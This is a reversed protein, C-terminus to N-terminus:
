GRRRLLGMGALGVALLALASPVPVRVPQDSITIDSGAVEGNNGVEGIYLYLPTGLALPATLNFSIRGFDGLSVFGFAGPIATTAEGDFADLTAVANNVAGGLTGFLAPDVPARQTGPVFAISTFDFTAARTLSGVQSADTILVTSLVIADLDFGSFQGAAGGFGGSTDQITISAVTGALSSLDARFVGTAAISGGAVGTLQTFTVPTAAAPGALLLAFAAGTLLKSIRM